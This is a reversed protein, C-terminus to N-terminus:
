PVYRREDNAEAGGLAGHRSPKGWTMPRGVQKCMTAVQVCRESTGHGGLDNMEVVPQDADLLLCITGHLDTKGVAVRGFVIRDDRGVTHMREDLFLQKPLVLRIESSPDGIPGHERCLEEASILDIVAGFPPTGITM